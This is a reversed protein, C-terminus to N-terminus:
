NIVATEFVKEILRRTGWFGWERESSDTWTILYLEHEEDYEDVSCLYNEREM